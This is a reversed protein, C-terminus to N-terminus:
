LASMAVDILEYSRIRASITDAITLLVLEDAGTETAAKNLAEAVHEGTGVIARSPSTLPADRLMAAAKDASMFRRFHGAGRSLTWAAITSALHRAEAETDAALVGLGIASYPQAAFPSPQFAERYAHLAAAAGGPNLFDAFALRLGMAGAFAASSASSCLMWVGPHPGPPNAAIGNARHGAELPAAGSADLWWDLLMRLMQPFNEAGPGLLAASTRPDAGTARGLGLEIRGPYLASLMQGTEAVKLPSYNPLMIGGSGIILRKTRSAIDAIQVEPVAGAFSTANHHEQLWYARYNMTDAASALARTENLADSATRGEFLPSPDLISLVPMVM